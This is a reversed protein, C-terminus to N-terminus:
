GSRLTTQHESLACAATTFLYMPRQQSTIALTVDPRTTAAQCVRGEIPGHNQHFVKSVNEGLKYSKYLVFIDTLM